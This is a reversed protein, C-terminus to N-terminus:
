LITAKLNADLSYDLCKNGTTTSIDIHLYTIYLVFNFM